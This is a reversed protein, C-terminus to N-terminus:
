VRMTKSTCSTLQYNFSIAVREIGASCIYPDTGHELWSPFLLLLGTQPTVWINRNSICSSKFFDAYFMNKAQRPDVFVINGPDECEPIYPYYVGSLFSNPHQHIQHKSGSSHVNSWMSTLTLDNKKIGLVEESFRETKKEIFNVLATFSERSNLNDPTTKSQDLLHYVDESKNKVISLIESFIDVTLTKDETYFMGVPTAFEMIVDM